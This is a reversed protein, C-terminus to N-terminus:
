MIKSVAPGHLRPHNTLLSEDVHVSLHLAILHPDPPSDPSPPPTGTFLEFLFLTWLMCRFMMDWCRGGSEYCRESIYLINYRWHVWSSAFYLLTFPLIIPSTAAYAMAIVYILLIAGIERGYRISHPSLAEARQLDSRPVAIIPPPDPNHPRPHWSLTTSKPDWPAAATSHLCLARM